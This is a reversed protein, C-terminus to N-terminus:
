KLNGRAFSITRFNQPLTQGKAKTTQGLSQPDRSPRLQRQSVVMLGALLKKGKAGLLDM